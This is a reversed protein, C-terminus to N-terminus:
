DLWCIVADGARAADAFFQKVGPLLHVAWELEGPDDDLVSPYIENMEAPDVDRILDAETVDALAAAVKAVNEPM